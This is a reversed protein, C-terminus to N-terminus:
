LQEGNQSVGNHIYSCSAIYDILEMIENKNHPTLKHIRRTKLTKESFYVRFFKQTGFEYEINITGIVDNSDFKLHAGKLVM